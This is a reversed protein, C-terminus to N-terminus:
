ACGCAKHHWPLFTSLASSASATNQDQWFKPKGESNDALAGTTLPRSIKRGQRPQSRTAIGSEPERRCLDQSRHSPAPDTRKVSPDREHPLDPQQPDEVEGRCITVFEWVTRAKDVLTLTRSPARHDRPLLAPGKNKAKELKRKDEGENAVAPIKM